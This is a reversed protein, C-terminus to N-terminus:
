VWLVIFKEMSIYVYVGFRKTTCRKYVFLILHSAKFRVTLRGPLMGSALNCCTTKKSYSIVEMSQIFENTINFLCLM